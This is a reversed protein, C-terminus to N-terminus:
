TDGTDTQRKDDDGAVHGPGYPLGGGRTTFLERTSYLVGVLIM